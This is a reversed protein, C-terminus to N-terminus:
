NCAYGQMNCGNKIEQEKEFRKYVIVNKLKVQLWNKTEQQKKFPLGEANSIINKDGRSKCPSFVISEKNIKCGRFDFEM